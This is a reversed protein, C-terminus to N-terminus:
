TAFSEGSNGANACLRRAGPRFGHADATRGTSQYLKALELAARLKFSRAKQQQAIGIATASHRRM